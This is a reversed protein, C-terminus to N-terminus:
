TGAWTPRGGGPSAAADCGAVLGWYALDRPTLRRAGEAELFATLAERSYRRRLWQMAEWTGRTMVREFVLARDRDLDLTAPDVDWLLGLVSRPAPEEDV